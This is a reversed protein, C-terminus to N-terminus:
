IGLLKRFESLVDQSAARYPVRRAESADWREKELKTQDAYQQKAFELAAKLAEDNAAAASSAANASYLKQFWNAGGNILDAVSLGTGWLGGTAVAGGGGAAGGAALADVTANVNGIAPMTSAAGGGGGGLAGYLAPGGLFAGVGINALNDWNFGQEWEGKRPDWQGRERWLSQDPSSGTAKAWAALKPDNGYSNQGHVESPSIYEVTGVTTPRGRADLYNLRYPRGQADWQVSTNQYAM